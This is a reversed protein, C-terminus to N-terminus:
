GVAAQDAERHRISRLGYFETASGGWIRAQEEETLSSLNSQLAEVVRDYSGALLCVPWDSGFMLRGPTFLGLVHDIYRRLDSPKWDQWSAETVMGSLKCWVNPCRSLEAMGGAWDDWGGDSIRPKAIHDIVLPLGPFRRATELAAPLHPPKVLLDFPVKRLELDSLGGQVDQRLLWNPDPEDHVVHRIGVFKPHEQLTEVAQDVEPATLDVWGVVGKIFTHESALSLFWRTEEASGFTQVLVAGELRHRTLLPRLDEPGFSRRLPKLDETIWSHPFQGLSWFHQHADVRM